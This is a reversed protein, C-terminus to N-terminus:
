KGFVEAASDISVSASGGIVYGKGIGQAAVYDAAAGERGGSVLLLPAGLAFAVPGGSLGDPFDRSNALAASVAGPFFIRALEASTKERGSGSIRQAGNADYAHLQELIEKSVSNQGGIVFIDANELSSLYNKQEQTLEKNKGNVLLIPLGTASASLSDAFDMGTCVLVKGPKRGLIRDAEQIILLSTAWRGSGALRIVKTGANLESTLSDPISSTGGLIYVTGGEALNNNIYAPVSAQSNAYLLIPAKAAAALYSGSLADPFNRADAVVITQFKEVGYLKKLLEASAIATQVRGNGFIRDVHDPDKPTDPVEPETPEPETPEPETPEPETPETPEVSPETPEPETPETPEVPPETPEPESPATPEVPPETPEPETPETVDPTPLKPISETKTAGCICTFTKIGESTETPEKTVKGSDWIHDKAPITEQKVLVTNCVSCHKGETKGAATCTPAVAKDVVETHGAAPISEQKVLVIGCVSCHKGETKGAATCTPAVAKDVVETHGTAPITEQKVLVTDCVSCHKGETKGAATCTPAVGKDIVETHGKPDVYKGQYSHGCSCTFTTYGKETCTPATVKETYKHTHGLVAIAETKTAPCVTCTFTKIGEATETPEKTVKGSDWTHDKAPITEQEVLVTNCVSCHKGETKGAATCTPAVAKDIVETHGKAPVKTDSYSNNCRSCKHTTYGEAICTPPTVTDLYNHGLAEPYRAERDGCVTCERQEWGQYTCTPERTVIWDGYKHGLAAVHDDQKTVACRSCKYTTYGQYYCGAEKVSDKVYDHGLADVYTDNKVNGCTDCIHKTYGQSICTPPIITDSYSHGLAEPYRTEKNGCASCERQERGQYTCTPERTVTWDGYKHGLAAVHDDQKTDACRSCKYTTYGQDTCTPETVSDKEYNHGLADPYRTEYSTCNLGTCTRKEMGTGTCTPERTVTWEGYIHGVAPVRRTVTNSCGTCTRTETGSSYCGPATTLVWDGYSHPLMDVYNDSYTKGCRNCKYSTYGRSTCTPETVSDEVYDHGLADPYRTESYTCNFGTCTRRETGSGTCTPEQIVTWEGYIHGTKPVSRTEYHGCDICTRKEVGDTYCSARTVVWDGFNHPLADVYTDAYTHECRTCTHETYGQGSCSPAVTSGTKYDHGLEAGIPAPCILHSPINSGIFSIITGQYCYITTAQSLAGVGFEAECPYFYIEKLNSCASFASEGIHIVSEPIVVSQLSTCGYFCSHPIEVLYKPLNIEKLSSCGNFIHPGNFSHIGDHLTIKELKTCNYFLSQTLETVGEPITIEKLSSCGDFTQWEISTVSNPIDIEELASCHYFASQGITVLGEPLKVSKLSSCGSFTFSTLETLGKPINVTTLNRCDIFVGVGFETVTEPIVVKALSTNAEFAHHDLRKIGEPLVISLLTMCFSFANEKVTTGSIGFQMNYDGGIPGASILKPCGNLANTGMINIDPVVISELASCGNFAYMGVATVAEPIKASVLNTLGRFANNGIGTIAESIVLKKISEWQAYWPAGGVNYNPIPGSGSIILTGDATIEWSMPGDEPVVPDTPAPETVPPETPEPETPVPETVEPEEPKTFDSPKPTYDSASMPHAAYFETTNHDNSRIHDSFSADCKLFYAYPLGAEVRAADFTADLNYYVDGLKVINWGHSGEDTRGSVYRCDIDMERLLRYMLLAYGQCVATRDVLAAYATYKLDYSPDNKHADDYTVNACIWDYIIKVTEYDSYDHSNLGLDERLTAIEEAVRKEQERTTYFTFDFAFNLYGSAWSDTEWGAGCSKTHKELYDGCEIGTSEYAFVLARIQEYIDEGPSDSQIQFVVGPERRVMYERIRNAADAVSSVIGVDEFDEAWAMANDPEMVESGEPVAEETQTEETETATTEMVVAPVTEAAATEAPVTEVEAAHVHLAGLPLNGLLMSLVLLMALVRKM